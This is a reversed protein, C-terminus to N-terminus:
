PITILYTKFPWPVFPFCFLGEMSSDVLPRESVADTDAGFTIPFTLPYLESDIVNAGEFRVALTIPLSFVNKGALIIRIIDSIQEETAGVVGMAPIPFEIPFTM